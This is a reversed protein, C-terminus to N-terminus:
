CCIPPAGSVEGFSSLIISRLFSGYRAVLQAMPANHHSVPGSSVAMGKGDALSLGPQM